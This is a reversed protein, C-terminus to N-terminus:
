QKSPGWIKLILKLPPPGMKFISFQLFKMNMKHSFHLLGEHM